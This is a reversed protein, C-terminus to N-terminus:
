GGFVGDYLDSNLAVAEGIYNLESSLGSLSVPRRWTRGNRIMLFVAIVIM